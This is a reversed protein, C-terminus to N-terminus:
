GFRPAQQLINRCLNAIFLALNRTNEQLREQNLSLVNENLKFWYDILWPYDEQTSTTIILEENFSPVWQKLKLPSCRYYTFLFDHVPHKLGLARRKLFADAFPGVLDMHAKARSTWIEVSLPSTDLDTM